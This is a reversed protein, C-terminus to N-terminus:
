ALLNHPNQFKIPLGKRIRVTSVLLLNGNNAVVSLLIKLRSLQQIENNKNKIYVIQELRSM